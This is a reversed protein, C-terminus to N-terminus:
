RRAGSAPEHAYVTCSDAEALRARLREAVGSPDRGLYRTVMQITEWGCAEAIDRDSMGLGRLTRAATRRLDHPRRGPM